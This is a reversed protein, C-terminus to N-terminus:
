KVQVCTTGGVHVIDTNVTNKLALNYVVIRYLGRRMPLTIKGIAYTLSDNPNIGQDKSYTLNGSSVQGSGSTALIDFVEYHITIPWAVPVWVLESTNEIVLSVTVEPATAGLIKVTSDPMAKGIISYQGAFVTSASIFLIVLIFSLFFMKKIKM